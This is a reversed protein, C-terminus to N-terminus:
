LIKKIELWGGNEANAKNLVDSPGIVVVHGTQAVSELGGAFSKFDGPGSSLLEDRYKQRWGDTIGLMFRVMSTYGKADPLQYADLEGIAGIISKKIEASNVEGDRLFGPIGDYAKLTSLLNPDRYSLYTLAGSFQDLLVFGGYAGGQARVKDWIWTTNLYQLIALSSGNLEYGAEFINGAKGVFNVQSPITWGESQKANDFLWIESHIAEGPLFRLFDEVLNKYKEWGPKDITVNAIMTKKNVLRSRIGKLILLVSNWNEDIDKVLDRLFNLYSIGSILENVAGAENMSSKLRLNVFRHGANSVASELSAKEELVIQRFRDQNELNSRVLIDNVAEMMLRTKTAMCKGRVVLWAESTERGPAPSILTQVHIGGTDRGIRQLLQVYDEGGETGMETLSRGFLPIYPLWKEPLNHLNLGLDFYFIGHTFLDHYLIKSSGSQYIENPIKRIQKDLDTLALVPICALAEPSDPTEQRKKLAETELVIKKFDTDTMKSRAQNLRSQELELRQRALNVEPELIVVVRNPTNIFYETILNEFYPERATLRNKINNLSADIHLDTFPDGDYLWTSLSRLMVALGRPFNGTNNERLTFEVTNISAAVTNPDIGKSVLTYLTGVILAEVKNTNEKEVGKLGTSFALQRLEDMLGSGIM